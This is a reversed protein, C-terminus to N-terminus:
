VLNAAASVFNWNSFNEPKAVGGGGERGGTSVRLYMWQGESPHRSSLFWLCKPFGSGLESVGPYVNSPKGEEHQRGQFLGERSSNILHYENFPAQSQFFAGSPQSRFMWLQWGPAWRKWSAKVQRPSKKLSGQAPLSIITITFDRAHFNFSLYQGLDAM